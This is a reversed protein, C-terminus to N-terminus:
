DAPRNFVCAFSAAGTDANVDAARGLRADSTAGFCGSAGDGTLGFNHDLAEQHVQLHLLLVAGREFFYMLAINLAREPSQAVRWVPVDFVVFSPLVPRLRAKGTNLTTLEGWSLGDAADRRASM